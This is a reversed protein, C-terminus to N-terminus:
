STHPGPKPRSIEFTEAAATNLYSKGGLRAIPRFANRSEVAMLARSLHIGLIEGIVYMSSLPGDGHEVVRYLRCEFHVPSQAVRAPSIHLSELATFRTKTWENVEAPYRGSTANMDETMERTVLNVVYEGTEVINSLTDKPGSKDRLPCFVLSPPNVGGPM